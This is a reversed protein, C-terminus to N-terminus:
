DRRSECECSWVAYPLEVKSIWRLLNNLSIIECTTCYFNQSSNCEILPFILFSKILGVFDLLTWNAIVISKVSTKYNIASHKLLVQIFQCLSHFVSYNMKFGQQNTMQQQVEIFGLLSDFYFYFYFSFWFWLDDSLTLEEVIELFKSSKKKRRIIIFSNPLSLLAGSLLRERVNLILKARTRFWTSSTTAQVITQSLNSKTETICNCM